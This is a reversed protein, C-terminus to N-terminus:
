SAVAVDLMDQRCSNGANNTSWTATASVLQDVTTDIATSGLNFPKGTVTGPTGLGQLGAAVLTGTAGDTRIILEAEIFFIDNNAVDVAATAIIVQTGIKLKVTLTDTSNTATAIGQLLIKIRKAAKLTNAPITATQDFATEAATTTVASSAVTQLLLTSPSNRLRCVVVEDGDATTATMAVGIFNGNATASVKGAAAGYIDAYQAIVGNAIFKKTGQANDLVAPALKGSALGSALVRRQLTAIERDTAGALAIQGAVIKVRLYPGFATIAPNPLSEVGTLNVQVATAEL